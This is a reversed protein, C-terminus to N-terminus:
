RVQVKEFRGDEFESVPRCWTKGDEGRYVVLVDGEKIPGSAQVEARAIEVYATGRKKHKWISFSM